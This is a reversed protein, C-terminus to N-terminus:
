VAKIAQDVLQQGTLTIERLRGVESVPEDTRVAIYAFQSPGLRRQLLVVFRRDSLRMWEAAHRAIDRHLRDRALDGVHYTTRM